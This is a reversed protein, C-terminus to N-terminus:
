VDKDGREAIGSADLYTGRQSFSLGVPELAHFARKKPEPANGILNWQIIRLRKDLV